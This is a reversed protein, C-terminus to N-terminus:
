GTELVATPCLSTALMVGNIDGHALWSANHRHPEQCWFDELAQGLRAHTSLSDLCNLLEPRNQSHRYLVDLGQLGICLGLERFALRHNPPVSAPRSEAYRNLGIEVGRLISHLLDQGPQPQSGAPLQALRCADQLLGGLGLPDTTVWSTGRIMAGLAAATEELASQSRADQPSLSLTTILGDLADHPSSSEVLPASLDVRMKWHLRPPGTRAAFARSAVMILERAFDRYQTEDSHRSLAELAVAWKTLYHFYQGDRDWERREDYPEDVARELEPKGIRLGGATPHREAEAETLGSLRGSRTDAPDFRGLVSHVQDVLTRALTLYQADGTTQWLSLYNCVAYADTWLYRRPNSPGQVGTAETFQAM